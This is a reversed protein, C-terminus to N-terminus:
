SKQIHYFEGIKEKVSWKWSKHESIDRENEVKMETKQTQTKMEMECLGYRKTGKQLYGKSIFIM